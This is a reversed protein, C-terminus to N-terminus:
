PAPALTPHLLHLLEPLGSLVMTPDPETLWNSNMGYATGNQVATFQGWDPGQSYASENLGFGTGYIIVTPDAVLVQDGTLLPYPLNAGAGIGSGSAEEILSQGFSGPGYTWYGPSNGAAPDVSYTVLVTPLSVGSDTVNTTINQAEGFTAQLQANLADAASAVGFIQGLVSDDVEIGSLTPPQLMVVPIHFTDQIEGINGVSVLTTSLVLDPSANTLSEFSFVPANQVCMSSTLSWLTIQDPSYDDSLGGASQAYCDVAVVHSRLGLRYMSDMISPGFVVVRAPDPPVSVRRGLDDTLTLSGPPTSASPHLELYAATAAMAVGAVVLLGVAFLALPVTRRAPPPPVSPSSM